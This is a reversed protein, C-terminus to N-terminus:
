SPHRRCDTRSGPARDRAPARIGPRRRVAVTFGPEGKRRRDPMRRKSRADFFRYFPVTEYAHRVLDRLRTEQYLRHEDPDARESEELFRSLEESEPGFRQRFIRRGHWAIIANQVPVPIHSYVKSRVIWTQM